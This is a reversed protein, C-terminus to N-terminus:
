AITMRVRSRIRPPPTILYPAYESTGARVRTHAYARRLIRIGAPMHKHKHKHALMVDENPMLMLMLM